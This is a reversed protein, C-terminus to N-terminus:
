HQEMEGVGELENEKMRKGRGEKKSEKIGGKERRHSLNPCNEGVSCVLHTNMVPIKLFHPRSDFVIFLRGCDRCGM